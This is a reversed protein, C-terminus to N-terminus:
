NFDRLYCYSWWKEGLCQGESELVDSKCCISFAWSSIALFGMMRPFQSKAASFEAGIKAVSGLHPSFTFVSQSFVCDRKSWDLDLPENAYAGEFDGVVM